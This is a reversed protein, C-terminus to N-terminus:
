VIVNELYWLMFVTPSQNKLIKVTNRHKKEVTLEYNTEIRCITCVVLNYIFSISSEWEGIRHDAIPLDHNRYDHNPGFISIPADVILLM